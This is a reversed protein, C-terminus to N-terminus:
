FWHILRSKSREIGLNALFSFICKIVKRRKSFSPFASRKQKTNKRVPTILQVGQLALRDHLVLGLYGKDGLVTTISISELM